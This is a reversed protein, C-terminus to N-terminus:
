GHRVDDDESTPPHEGLSEDGIEVGLGLVTRNAYAFYAVVQNLELIAADGLGALRLAEVDGRRMAWPERTLKRAYRAMALDRDDAITAEARGLVEEVLPRAQTPDDLHGALGVLHHEVCYPCGNLESVVVGMLEKDRATLDSPLSHLAAKYLALHGELTRPRLAHVQLIADVQGSASAVKAYLKELRGTASEPGITEIWATGM